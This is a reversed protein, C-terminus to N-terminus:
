ILCDIINTRIIVQEKNIFKPVLVIKYSQMLSFLHYLNFGPHEKQSQIGLLAMKDIYGNHTSCMKKSERKQKISERKQNVITSQVCTAKSQDKLGM